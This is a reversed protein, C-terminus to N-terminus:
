ANLLYINYKALRNRATCYSFPLPIVVMGIIHQEPIFLFIKKEDKKEEIM